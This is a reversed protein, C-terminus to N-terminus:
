KGENLKKFLPAVRMRRYEKDVKPNEGYSDISEHLDRLSWRVAEIIHRAHILCCIEDNDDPNLAFVYCAWTSSEDIYKIEAYCNMCEAKEGWNQKLKEKIEDNM